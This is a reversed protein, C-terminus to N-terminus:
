PSFTVYDGVVIDHIIKTVVATSFYRRALTIKLGGLHVKRTVMESPKKSPKQTERPPGSPVRDILRTLQADAEVVRRQESPTRYKREMWDVIDLSMGPRIGQAKGVNLLVVDEVSLLSRNGSAGVITGIGSPLRRKQLDPPLPFPVGASIRVVLDGREFEESAEMVRARAERKFVEEVQLRGTLRVTHGIPKATGPETVEGGPKLVFLEEGPQLPTGPARLVYVSQIVGLFFRADDAPAVSMARLALMEPRTLLLHVPPSAALVAQYVTPSLTLQADAPPPALMGALLMTLLLRLAAAQRRRAAHSPGGNSIM